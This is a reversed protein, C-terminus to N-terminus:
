PLVPQLRSAVGELVRRADILAEDQEVAQRMPQAVPVSVVAVSSHDGQGRLMAWATVLKARSESALVRGDLVYWTWVLREESPSRLRIELITGQQAGLAVQRVTRSILQWGRPDDPMVVNGAAIMEHGDTQNAFYAAYVEVGPSSDSAGQVIARAGEFKPQITLNASKLPGVAAVVRANFDAAPQVDRLKQSAIVSTAIALLCVVLAPAIRRRSLVNPPRLVHLGPLAGASKSQSNFDRSDRWKAGMWFLVFMTIGFFVWGYVVHDDGVGWRMNSFHGVLVILYARMWNAVVAVLISAGFFIVRQTWFAFNLYAFLAGLMAAALVYRLGSCAEVVSWRGTPLAFNMGERYVPIGSAQLAWVTANATGDMLPPNFVEGAPVMFFLFLLPFAMAKAVNWGTLSLVLCVIMGTLAFQAVVNIGALVAALWGLCCVTLGAVGMWSISPTLAALQARQRWVLWVAIPAVAMGHGYTESSAWVRAMAIWTPAFVVLLAALGIGLAWRTTAWASTTQVPFDSSRLV